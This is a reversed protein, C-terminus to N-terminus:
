EPCYDLNAAVEGKYYGWTDLSGKRFDEWRYIVYTGEGTDRIFLKMAGEFKVSDQVSTKLRLYYIGLDYDSEFTSYGEASSDTYVPEGTYTLQLNGHKTSGDNFCTFIRNIVLDDNTKEWAAAYPSVGQDALDSSDSLDPRFVYDDALLIDFATTNWTSLSTPLMSVVEEPSKPPETVNTVTDPAEAERPTFFCGVALVLAAAAGITTKRGGSM